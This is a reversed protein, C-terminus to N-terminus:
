VPKEMLEKARSVINQAWTALGRSQEGAGGRLCKERIDVFRKDVAKCQAIEQASAPIRRNRVCFEFMAVEWGEKRAQKGLGCLMLDRALDFREPSFQSIDNGEYALLPTKKAALAKAAASCVESCEAPVPFFRGDRKPLRDRLIRQAAENLVEDDYAGLTRTMSAIWAAERTEDGGFQPRPFHLEVVAIFKMVGDASM